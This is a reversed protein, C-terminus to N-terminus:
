KKRKGFTKGGARPRGFAKRKNFMTKKKRMTKADRGQMWDDRNAEWKLQKQGAKDTNAMANLGINDFKSGTNEDLLSGFEEASAFMATDKRGKKKGQKPGLSFDPEESSKRKGKKTRPTIDPVEMEDDSVGFPDDELEPVEEDDEDEEGDPDMFMGGEEELEDGFDEEDMSGLSVEEDDLDVDSEDSDSAEGEKKKKKKAKVNGAFDLDDDAMDTFYSDPECSDLMKEFEEDDVDEVSENDGDGRPRRVKLQKEQHRKRFFRHFFIQDVPILSEDKTLFEECNVPVSKLPFRQRPTLASSDTHQKGKMQKPNRFVFRDLFRTLTFDQLPDGSYLISGGELITKAFLSVSPHFHAALRQLEWLTTHDAGCFLPNRHLPDYSQQRKGGASM